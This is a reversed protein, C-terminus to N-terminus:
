FLLQYSATLTVFTAMSTAMMTRVLGPPLQASFSRRQGVAERSVPLCEARVLVGADLVGPEPVRGSCTQLEPM